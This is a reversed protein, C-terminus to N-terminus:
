RQNLARTMYAPTNIRPDNVSTCPAVGKIQRLLHSLILGEAVCYEQGYLETHESLWIELADPHALPRRYTWDLCTPLSSSPKYVWIGRQIAQREYYRAMQVLALLCELLKGGETVGHLPMKM